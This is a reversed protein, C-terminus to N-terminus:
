SRVEVKEVYPKLKKAFEKLQAETYTEKELSPDLTNRPRFQQLVLKTGKVLKAVAILDKEKHFRPVVTIRFEFDPARKVIKISEKIKEVDVNTGAVENYKELPAKIDMAIYDVLKSDLLEKLTDPDSGNTDLKVLFGMKKLRKAFNKLDPQLTPEGGTIEVADLLKRGKLYSFIFDEPIEETNKVKEPVVLESNQCFPCRFNCGITFVISCIKGPYDILSQKQFGGIKM